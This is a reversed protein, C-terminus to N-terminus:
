VYTDTVGFVPSHRGGGGVSDEPESCLVYYVCYFQRQDKFWRCNELQDSNNSLFLNEQLGRTVSSVSSRM